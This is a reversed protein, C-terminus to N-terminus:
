SNLTAPGRAFIAGELHISTSKIVPEFPKSDWLDLPDVPQVDYHGYILVTPLAPDIIKEAYVIPYGKTPCVEANDAGAATLKDKIFEATRFLDDAYEPDASISPISLLEFLEDLFRQKNQQLYQDLQNM